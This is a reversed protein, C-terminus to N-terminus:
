VPRYLPRLGAVNKRFWSESGVWGVREAIVSAPMAPFEELLACVRPKFEDFSTPGQRREYMPPRDSALVRQVTKRDIGLDRAVQRQPVGEGVLQRITAWDKISIAWGDQDPPGM